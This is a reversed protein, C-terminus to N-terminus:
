TEDFHFTQAIRSAACKDRGASSHEHSQIFVKPEESWTRTALDVSAAIPAIADIAECILVDIDTYVPGAVESGDQCIIVFTIDLANNFWALRRRQEAKRSKWIRM